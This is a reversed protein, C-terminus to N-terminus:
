AMPTLNERSSNSDAASREVRNTYIVKITHKNDNLSIDAIVYVLRINLLIFRHRILPSFLTPGPIGLFTFYLTLLNYLSRLLLIVQLLSTAPTKLYLLYVPNGVLRRPYKPCSLSHALGLQENNNGGKM